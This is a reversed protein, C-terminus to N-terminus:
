ITKQFDLDSEFEIVNKQLIDIYKIKVKANENEIFTLSLTRVRDDRNMIFGNTSNTYSYLFSNVDEFTFVNRDKIWKKFLLKRKVQIEKTYLTSSSWIHAQNTKKINKHKKLGDWVLEYLNNESFLILTFPEINELDIEPWHSIPTKLTLLETVILGRSKRYNTTSIHKEFAGNLVVMFNGFANYGIWTGLMPPVIPKVIELGNEIHKQPPYSFNRSPSEDRNSTLVFGKKTPIFLVTCM